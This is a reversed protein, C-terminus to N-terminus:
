EALWQFLEKPSDFLFFEANPQFRMFFAYWQQITKAESKGEGYFDGEEWSDAVRAFYKNSRFEQPVLTVKNVEVLKIGIIPFEEKLVEELLITDTPVPSPIIKKM